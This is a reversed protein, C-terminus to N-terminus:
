GIVKGNNGQCVDCREEGEEGEECREGEMHGDMVQDLIMRGCVRGSVFEGM